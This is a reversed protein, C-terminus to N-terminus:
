PIKDNENNVERDQYVKPVKYKMNARKLMMTQMELKKIVCVWIASLGARHTTVTQGFRM